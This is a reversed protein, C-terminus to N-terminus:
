DNLADELFKHADGAAVIKRELKQITESQRKNQAESAALARRLTASEAEEFSM